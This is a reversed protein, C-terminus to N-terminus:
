GPTGEQIFDKLLDETSENDSSELSPMGEGEARLIDREDETLEGSGNGQEHSDGEVKMVEYSFYLLLKLIRLAGGAPNM